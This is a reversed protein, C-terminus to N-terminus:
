PVFRHSVDDGQRTLVTLPAVVARGLVLFLRGLPELEALEAAEAALVRRMALLLLVRPEPRSARSPRPQCPCGPM